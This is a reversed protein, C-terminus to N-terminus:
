AVAIDFKLRKLNSNTKLLVSISMKFQLKFDAFSIFSFDNIMLISLINQKINNKVTSNQKFSNFIAGSWLRASNETSYWRIRGFQRYMKILYKNCIPSLYSKSQFYPRKSCQIASENWESKNLCFWWIRHRNTLVKM